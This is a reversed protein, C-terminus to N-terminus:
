MIIHMAVHIDVSHTYINHCFQSIKFHIFCVACVTFATSKLKVIRRKRTSDFNFTLLCKLVAYVWQCLM